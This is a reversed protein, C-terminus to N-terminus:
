SRISSIYSKLRCLPITTPLDRKKPAQVLTPPPSQPPLSRPLGLAEIEPEIEDSLRTAKAQLKVGKQRVKELYEQAIAEAVEAAHFERYEEITGIGYEKQAHAFRRAEITDREQLHRVRMAKRRHTEKRIDDWDEDSKSLENNTVFLGQEEEDEDPDTDTGDEYSVEIIVKEKTNAKSKGKTSQEVRTKPKQAEFEAQNQM